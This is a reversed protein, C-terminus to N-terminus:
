NEKTFVREGQPRKITMQKTSVDFEVTAGPGLTFKNIAIAELPIANNGNQISIGTDTKIIIMKAPTGAVIYTGVYQALIESSVEFAKFNPIEYPQNWYINFVAAIIDKVPYIKANTTYALSIKETPEYALWAGSSNGGGTHGFMSKTSFTFPEIGLGEGDHMTTMMDLSSKSILKLDFLAQIFLCMDHPTSLIAGAGAPISFHMEQAEKWEGLYRYSLSENKDPNTNGIGFYTNKLGIKTLIRDNLIEQYKKGEVKEIIYGLLVYGTNSYEHKTDPEFNLKGKAIVEMVEAQSRELKRWGEEVALEPIGSRHSLIHAITIKEDDVIQPFFKNLRDDLKLKGEEILQFVMVATYTKTISAIRFKTDNTIPKKNSESILSYGFSRSYIVVGDKALTISGMGKNNEYIRDFLLDLKAKDFTQSQVKLTICFFLLCFISKIKM